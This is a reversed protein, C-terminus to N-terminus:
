KLAFYAAVALAAIGLMGSNGSEAQGPIYVERIEPAVQVPALSVGAADTEIMFEAPRATRTM